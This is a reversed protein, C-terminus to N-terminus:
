LVQVKTININKEKAGYYIHKRIHSSKKKEVWTLNVVNITNNKMILKVKKQRHPFCIEQVDNWLILQKVPHIMGYRYEIKEDDVNFFHDKRSFTAIAAIIGSVISIGFPAASLSIHISDDHLIVNMFVTGLGAMFFLLTFIWLLAKKGRSFEEKSLNYYLSEM